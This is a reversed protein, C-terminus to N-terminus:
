NPFMHSAASFKRQNAQMARMFDTLSVFINSSGTVPHGGEEVEELNTPTTSLWNLNVTLEGDTAAEINADNPEVLIGNYPAFMGFERKNGHAAVMNAMDVIVVNPQRQMSLLIDVYDRPSEARLVFKLAYVIGHPCTATVM